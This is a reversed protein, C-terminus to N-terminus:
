WEHVMDHTQKSIAHMEPTLWPISGLTCRGPNKSANQKKSSAALGNVDACSMRPAGPLLAYAAHKATM